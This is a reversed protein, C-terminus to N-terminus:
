GSAYTTYHVAKNVILIANFNKSRCDAKLTDIPTDVAWKTKTFSVAAGVQDHDREPRRLNTMHIWDDSEEKLKRKKTEKTEKLVKQRTVPKQNCLM